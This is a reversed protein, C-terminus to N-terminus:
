QCGTVMKLAMGQLSSRHENAWHKKDTSSSTRCDASKESIMGVARAGPLVGGGRGPQLENLPRSSVLGKFGSFFGM